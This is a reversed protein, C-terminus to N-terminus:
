MPTRQSSGSIADMLGSLYIRCVIVVGIRRMFMEYDGRQWGGWAAIAELFGFKVHRCM